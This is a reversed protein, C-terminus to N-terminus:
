QLVFRHSVFCIVIINSFSNLVFNLRLFLDAGREDFTTFDRVLINKALEINLIIAIPRHLFYAGCLQAGTPKYKDYLRKSFQGTQLTKGLEKINGFPISPEDFPVGRSKWYDFSYKFFAYFISLLSILVLIVAGILEMKSVFVKFM